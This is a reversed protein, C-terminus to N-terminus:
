PYQWSFSGSDVINGKRDYATWAGSFGTSYEGTWTFQFVHYSNKGIIWKGSVAEWTETNGILISPWNIDEYFHTVTGGTVTLAFKAIAIGGTNNV